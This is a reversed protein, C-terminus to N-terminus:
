RGIGKGKTRLRDLLQEKTIGIKKTGGKKVDNKKWKRPGESDGGKGGKM